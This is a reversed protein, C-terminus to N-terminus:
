SANQVINPLNNFDACVINADECVKGYHSPVYVNYMGFDKSGKIDAQPNDGVFISEQPKVAIKHCALEFIAKEPKRLGVAESVIVADFLHSIGLSRFNREQFPSKGNSVLALKKGMNKLIKIAQIVNSKPKCFGSFCLEYSTLLESISWETISFEDILTKYVEDKWVTGRADLEIFRTTFLDKDIVDSQLMGHVQWNVFDRLSTSRDLITEDLDFLVAEM